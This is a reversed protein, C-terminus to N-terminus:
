QNEKKLAEVDAQLSQLEEQIGGNVQDFIIRAGESENYKGDKLSDVVQGLQKNEDVLVDNRQKLKKIITKLHFRDRDTPDQSEAIGVLSKIENMEGLLEQNQRNLFELQRELGIIKDEAQKQDFNGKM